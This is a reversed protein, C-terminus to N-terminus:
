GRREWGARCGVMREGELLDQTESEPMLSTIILNGKAAVAHREKKQLSKPLEM